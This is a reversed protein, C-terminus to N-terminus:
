REAVCPLAGAVAARLNLHEILRPINDLRNAVFLRPRNLRNRLIHKQILRTFAKQLDPEGMLKGCEELDRLDKGSFQFERGGPKKNRIERIMEAILRM